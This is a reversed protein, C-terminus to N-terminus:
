PRNLLYGSVPGVREDDLHLSDSWKRQAVPELLSQISCEWAQCLARMFYGPISGSMRWWMKQWTLTTHDLVLLGIVGGRATHRHM